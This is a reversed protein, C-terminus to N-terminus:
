VGGVLGHVLNPGGVGVGPRRRAGLVERLLLGTAAGVVTRWGARGGLFQALQDVGDGVLQGRDLRRQEPRDGSRGGLLHHLLDDLLGLGGDLGDDFAVRVDEVM